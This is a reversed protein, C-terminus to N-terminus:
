ISKRSEGRYNIPNSEILVSKKMTNWRLNSINFSFCHHTSFVCILFFCYVSAINFVDKRVYFLLSLDVVCTFGPWIMAYYLLTQRIQFNWFLIKIYYTNSEYMVRELEYDIGNKECTKVAPQSNCVLPGRTQCRERRRRWWLWLLVAGTNYIVWKKLRLIIRCTM